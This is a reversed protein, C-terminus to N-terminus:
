GFDAEDIDQYGILFSELSSLTLPKCLHYGQLWDCGLLKLSALETESEVGEAVLELGLNHALDVTSKILLRGRASQGIGSVFQRDLKLEDCPILQLYALSSQGTGYDDISIKAGAKRWMALHELALDPSALVATETIELTLPGCASAILPQVRRAFEKDGVLSASMNVAFGMPIGADLLVRQDELARRLVWESLAKIHGTEEAKTIFQDPPIFGREPHHWRCLAEVSEFRGTRANLKPQYQLSMEDRETAGLMESMLTLNAAPDGYREADYVAISSSERQAQDIALNLQQITEEVGEDHTLGGVISVDINASEVKVPTDFAGIIDTMLAHCAELDDTPAAMGFLGSSLRFVKAGKFSRALRRATAVELKTFTSYGLAGELQKRRIIQFAMVAPLCTQEALAHRLTEEMAACTPLGTAADTYLAESLNRARERANRGQAIFFVVAGLLALGVGIVIIMTERQQARTLELAHELSASRLQQIELEQEAFDFQAGVLAASASSTFVSREDTLRKFARMHEYASAWLRNEAYIEAAQGHLEMFTQDTERSDVGELAVALFRLADGPEGRAHAIQARVSWFFRVWEFTGDDTVLAFAQGITDEAADYREALIQMNALNNLIRAQLIPSDMERALDGARSFSAEAEDFQELQTLANAMNNYAALDLSPDHYRALANEFYEVARDYQQADSYISAMSQLAISESRPEDISRYIEYAQRYRDLASGHEGLVKEIRGLSTYIDATLKSSVPNEGLRELANLALPYADGARGLRTMAESQLWWATAYASDRVQGSSSAAMVEAMQALSLAESPDAMMVSQSASIAENFSQPHAGGQGYVPPTWVALCLWSLCAIAWYILDRNAVM